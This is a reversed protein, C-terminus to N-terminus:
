FRFKTFFGMDYYYIDKFISKNFRGITYRFGWSINFKEFFFSEVQVGARAEQLYIIDYSNDRDGTRYYNSLGGGIGVYFEFARLNSKPVIYYNTFLSLSSHPKLSFERIEVRGRSYVPFSGVLEIRPTVYVSGELLITTSFNRKFISDGEPTIERFDYGQILSGAFVISATGAKRQIYKHKFIKPESLISDKDINYIYFNNISDTPYNDFNSQISIEKTLSNGTRDTYVSDIIAYDVKSKKHLNEVYKIGIEKNAVIFNSKDNKKSNIYYSVSHESIPESYKLSAYSYDTKELSKLKIPNEREITELYINLEKSNIM